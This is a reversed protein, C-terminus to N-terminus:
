VCWGAGYGARVGFVKSRNNANSLYVREMIATKEVVITKEKGNLMEVCKTVRVSLLGKQLDIGQIEIELNGNKDSIAEKMEQLLVQKVLSTDGKQYETELTHKVIRSVQKELQNKQTQVYLLNLGIQLTYLTVLIGIMGLIVNKM